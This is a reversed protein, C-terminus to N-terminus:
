FTKNLVFFDQTYRERPAVEREQLNEPLSELNGLYGIAMIVVPEHTEPINLLEIAKSKEFGGMQHVNLGLQTAQLSLFANAAGLDFKAAGNPKDLTAFNKRYMAVVLLPAEKAWIKNGPMLTEFIKNWLTSQERTAYLYFWPQENVSSPAWRAAEFLSKIKEVEVARSSYARRSRRQEILETVPFEIETTKMMSEIVSEM